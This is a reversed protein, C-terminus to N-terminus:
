QQPGTTSGDAALLFNMEQSEATVTARLVSDVRYAEPILEVPESEAASEGEEEGSDEGGESDSNLGLIKRTTSIVVRKEGPVVGYMVSDFHMRYYGDDDTLGYAEAGTELDQFIVVAGGVPADDLKVVGDIEVLEVSTYDAQPANSCGAVLLVLLGPLCLVGSRATRM